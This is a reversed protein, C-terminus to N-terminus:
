EWNSRPNPARATACTPSSTTPRTVNAYDGYVEAHEPTNFTERAQMVEYMRRGYLRHRDVAQLDNIFAHAEEDPEARESNGNAGAGYGDLSAVISYILRAM